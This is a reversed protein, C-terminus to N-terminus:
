AVLTRHINYSQIRSKIQNNVIATYLKRCGYITRYKINIPCVITLVGAEVTLVLQFYHTLSCSISLPLLDKQFGKLINFQHELPLLQKFALVGSLNINTYVSCSIVAQVKLVAAGYDELTREM